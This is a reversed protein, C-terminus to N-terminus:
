WIRTYRTGDQSVAGIYRESLLSVSVGDQDLSPRRPHVYVIVPLALDAGAHRSSNLFAFFPVGNQNLQTYVLM